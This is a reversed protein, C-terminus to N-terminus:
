QLAESEPKAQNEHNVHNLRETALAHFTLDREILLAHRGCRLAAEGTTGSGAFPDLVEGGPNTSVLILREILKLPKQTPHLRDAGVLPFPLTSAMETDGLFNFADRGPKRVYLIPELACRWGIKRVSPPPNTKIWGLLSPRPFVFGALRLAFVWDALLRDGPFLYLAGGPQLLRHFEPACFSLLSQAEGQPLEDWKGLQSTLPAAARREHIIGDDSLVYPPDTAIAAFRETALTPLIERCDGLLVDLRPQIQKAREQHEKLRDARWM